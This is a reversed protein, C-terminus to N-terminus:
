LYEPENDNLTRTYTRLGSSKANMYGHYSTQRRNGSTDVWFYGIRRKKTNKKDFSPISFSFDSNSSTIKRSYRKGNHYWYKRGNHIWSM